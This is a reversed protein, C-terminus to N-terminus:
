PCPTEFDNNFEDYDIGDVFGDRNYDARIQQQPDPSEFDNNFNDYDIGDVFGDGNYDAPCDPFGTGLLLFPFGVSQGTNPATLASWQGNFVNMARAGDTNGHPVRPVAFPGFSQNMGRAGIELWYTGQNLPPLWSLDIWAEKVAAQNDMLNTGVRYTNSFDTAYLRNTVTNGAIPFGGAGPTGLWLRVTASQLPSNPASGPDVWCHRRPLSSDCRIM